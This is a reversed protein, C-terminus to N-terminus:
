HPRKKLASVRVDFPKAARGTKVAIRRDKLTSGRLALTQSAGLMIPVAWDSYGGDKVAVVTFPYQL